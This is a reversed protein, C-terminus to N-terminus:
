DGSKVASVSKLFDGFRPIDKSLNPRDMAAPIQTAMNQAPLYSFLGKTNRLMVTKLGSFDSEARMSNERNVVKVNAIVQDGVSVKQEYSVTM